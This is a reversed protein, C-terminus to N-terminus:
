FRRSFNTKDIIWGVLVYCIPYLIVTCALGFIDSIFVEPGWILGIIFLTGFYLGNYLLSGLAGWRGMMAKWLSVVFFFLIIGLISLWHRSLIFLFSDWAMHAGNKYGEDIAQMVTTTNM